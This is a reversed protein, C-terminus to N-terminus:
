DQNTNPEEEEFIDNFKQQLLEKDPLQTRYEAVM